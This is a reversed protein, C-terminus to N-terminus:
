AADGSRLSHARSIYNRRKNYLEIVLLLVNFGLWSLLFLGEGGAGEPTKAGFFLLATEGGWLFAFSTGRFAKM